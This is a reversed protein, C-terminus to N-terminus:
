AIESRPFAEDAVSRNGVGVSAVEAAAHDGRERRIAPSLGLYRWACYALPRNWRSPPLNAPETTRWAFHPRAPADNMRSLMREDLAVDVGRGGTLQRLQDAPDGAAANVPIAGLQAALDLKDRNIDVAYVDLAALARALQLASAGLGGVGFVAVTEGPSLRGKRLAHFSTASSCMM